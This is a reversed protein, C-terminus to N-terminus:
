LMKSLIALDNRKNIHSAIELSFYLEWVVHNRTVGHTELIPAM